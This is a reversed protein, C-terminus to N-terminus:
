DCYIKISHESPLLSLEGGGTFGGGGDCGEAPPLDMRWEAGEATTTRDPQSGGQHPIRGVGEEYATDPGMDRVQIAPGIEGGGLLYKGMELCGSRGKDIVLEAAGVEIQRVQPQAGSGALQRGRVCSIEGYGSEVEQLGADAM